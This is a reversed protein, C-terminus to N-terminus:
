QSRVSAAFGADPAHLNLVRARGSDAGRFGHLSGPSAAVFAGPGTRVVTDGVTFDVEGDLVWFSDTHDSHRHPEVTFSPDFELELVSLHQDEGKITVTRDGREFREGGAPGSVVADDAPRGRDTPWDENDFLSRDGHLAAAFGAEPAHLNLFRVEADSENGFTHLVGSPILVLTGAGGVVTRDERGLLFELEGELVYFADAHHHHVHPDPGRERPGWRYECVVLQELTAKITISREPKQGVVEGEGPDLVIAEM